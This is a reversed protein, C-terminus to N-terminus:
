EVVAAEWGDYYGKEGEAVKALELEIADIAAVELRAEKMAYLEYEDEENPGEILIQFGRGVLAKGARDADAKTPFYMYFELQHPAAMDTGAERLADIVAENGAGVEATHDQRATCGLALAALLALTPLRPM